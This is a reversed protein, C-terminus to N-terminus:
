HILGFFKIDALRLNHYGMSNPTTQKLMFYRYYPTESDLLFSKKAGIESLCDTDSIEHIVNWSKTDNSGSLEWGTIHGNSASSHTQLSYSILSVKKDRFDIKIFSNKKDETGFYEDHKDLEFLIKIDGHGKTSPTATFPLGKVSDGKNASKKLFSFIDYYEKDNILELCDSPISPVLFESDDKSDSKKENLKAKLESIETEYKRSLESIDNKHQEKLQSIESVLSDLKLSFNKNTAELENVRKELLIRKEIENALAASNSAEMSGESSNNELIEDSYTIIENYDVDDLCYKTNGFQSFDSDEENDNDDDDDDFIVPESFNSEFQMSFDDQSLSLKRFLEGFTPREKPNELLCMEIMKKLGKKIPFNFEPRLGKKIKDAFTFANFNKKRFIDKYARSGSILEYMLIGFAYVDAKSNYHNSNFIEPAMYAITGCDSMSMSVSNQPDLFKSLGFDTIKPRYDKDLLINEPKLDRHIVHHEQLIMMGRAIGILIIQKKTNDFDLPCLSKSEKEILDSLSGYKMHDMLIVINKEGAFDFYSFGRFQIITPHQVQILIRVERLILRRNQPKTKILNTKAAYEDGTKKNRVLDIIGFGGRNINKVIEYDKIDIIYQNKLSESPIM